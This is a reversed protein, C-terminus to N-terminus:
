VKTDHFNLVRALQNVVTLREFRVELMRRTNDM